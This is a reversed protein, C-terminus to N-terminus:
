MLLVEEELVFDSGLHTAVVFIMNRLLGGIIWDPCDPDTQSRDEGHQMCWFWVECPSVCCADVFLESAACSM